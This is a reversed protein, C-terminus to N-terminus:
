DPLGARRLAEAWVEKGKRNRYLNPHMYRTVTYHPDRRLVEDVECKARDLEHAHAYTSALVARGFIFSPDRRLTEELTPIALELQDSNRYCTGLLSLRPATIVPILRMSHKLNEIAELPKENFMQYWGLTYCPADMDPAVRCAREAFAISQDHHGLLLQHMGAYGLASPDAEDIALAKAVLVGMDEISSSEDRSWGMLVEQQRCAALQIYSLISAPEIRAFTEFCTRARANDAETFRNYYALGRYFSEAAEPSGYRTRRHRAREGSVLEVDLATVIERTL